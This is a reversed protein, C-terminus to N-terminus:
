EPEGGGPPLGPEPRRAFEPFHYVVRGDDSVQMGAYGRRALDDLLEGAKDLSLSTKLAALAATVTGGEQQALRLITRENEVRADQPPEVATQPAAEVAGRRGRAMGRLGRIMPLIGAFVMPFVFVWQFGGMPLVDLRLLTFFIATAIAGGVFTEVPKREGRGQRQRERRPELDSDHSM